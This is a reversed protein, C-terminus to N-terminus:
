VSEKAPAAPDAGVSSEIRVLLQRLEDEGGPGLLAAMDDALERVAEATVALAERGRGTVELAYRRRDHPDRGRRVLEQKVLDDVLQSVAPGTITLSEALQQQSCPGSAVLASLPKHFRLRLGTAALKDDGQRRLRLDAQGVLNETGQVLPRAAAPLLRALLEDLRATEARTLAATLRADREAVALRRDDQAARGPETLSLVYQRRNGPDRTRKVDGSAELRDIVQVMITRNIGLREALDAQSEWNQGGLADLVLFDRAATDAWDADSSFKARVRRLLFFVDGPEPEPGNVTEQVEHRPRRM